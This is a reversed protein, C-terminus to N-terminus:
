DDPHHLTDEGELEPPPLWRYRIRHAPDSAAYRTGLLAGLAGMGGAVYWATSEDFLGATMGLAGAVLGLTMGEGAGEMAAELPTLEYREIGYFRAPLITLIGSAATGGGEITFSSPQRTVMMPYTDSDYAASRLYNQLKVQLTPFDQAPASPVLTLLLGLAVFRVRM